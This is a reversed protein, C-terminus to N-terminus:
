SDRPSPSTYLLCALTLDGAKINGRNIQKLEMVTRSNRPDQAYEDERMTQIITFNVLLATILLLSVVAGYRISKNM